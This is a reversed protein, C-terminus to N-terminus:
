LRRVCRQRDIRVPQQQPLIVLMPVVALDQVVLLGIMVRSALASTVGAASLTKFVVVTSSLSIMAGFWIAETVPM